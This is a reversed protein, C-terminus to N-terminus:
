VPLPVSRAAKAVAGGAGTMHAVGILLLAGGVVVKAIRIWLAATTLNSLFGALGNAWPPLFNANAVGTGAAAVASGASTEAAGLTLGLAEELALEETAIGIADPTAKPTQAQGVAYLAAYVQAWTKGALPVTGGAKATGTYVPNGPTANATEWAEWQAATFGQGTPLAM